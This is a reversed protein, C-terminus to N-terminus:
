RKKTYDRKEAVKDTYNMQVRFISYNKYTESYFTGTPLPLLTGITQQAMRYTLRHTM